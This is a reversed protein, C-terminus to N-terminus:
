GTHAFKSALRNFMQKTTIEDPDYKETVIRPYNSTSVSISNGHEEKGKVEVKGNDAAVKALRKRKDDLKISRGKIARHEYVVENINQDELDKLVHAEYLHWDDPNPRRITMKINNMTPLSLIENLKDHDTLAVVSVEGYKQIISPQSFLKALFAEVAGPSIGKSESYSEFVFWHKKAFFTFFFPEYNPKLENPIKIRHEIDDDDAADRKELDFWPLSMDINTFRAIEGNIIQNETDKKVHGLILHQDGRSRFHKGLRFADQLLALYQDASHPHIVINIGAVSLKRNQAM